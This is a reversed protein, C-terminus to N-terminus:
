EWGEIAKCLADAAEYAKKGQGSKCGLDSILRVAKGVAANLNKLLKQRDTKEPKKASTANAAENLSMEGSEVAAVVEPSATKRIRRAQEVSRASVGSGKAVAESSKGSKPANEDPETPSRLNASVKSGVKEGPKSWNAARRREAEKKHLPIAKELIMSQQGVTLNRRKLNASIAYEIPTDGTYRVFEPEVGVHLCAQYRNRGGLIKEGILVIPLQQGHERIDDCLEKFEDSTMMPFINAVDHYERDSM